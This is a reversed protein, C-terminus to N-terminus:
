AKVRGTKSPKGKAAVYRGWGMPVLGQKRMWELGKFFKEREIDLKAAHWNERAEHVIEEDGTTTGTLLLNNWAAYLTAVIEAQRTNLPLLIQLLADVEALRGGLANATKNLLADFGPKRSFVYAGGVKQQHVDFWNAKRARSEVKKLHPYDNPGAADKLPVRELDIGLHSEILHSIKEAKVHGFYAVRSPNQEHLQYAMALIGAHLDTASIGAIRAPFVLVKGKDPVAQEPVAQEPVAQLKRPRGRELHEAKEAKIRALLMSAPEDSADQAVLRGSFAKKLISQRLVEAQQLSKTIAQDLQDVESFKADICRVIKTMEAISCLPFVLDSVREKNLAKQNNGSGIKRTIEYRYVLYSYIFEPICGAESVRIAATNQNHSAEIDLIAAQGRTKGEGIMGLMITGTPHIETSANGFGLPTIREDTDKIRCFAVEGSSVWPITGNWYDPQKRSPTSGVYVNFIQGFKAWSWGHPLLSMEALEEASLPPQPKPAKPKSGQKGGAEWEALQQQYRQTRERQIRELLADATELKDPNEARWQATLKGEFAHKLLAQRYVKLQAQVTKLSEIGKDLESFLEEIKAVIRRQENTPPIWIRLQTIKSMPLSPMVSSHAFDAFDIRKLFFYVWESSIGAYPIAVGIHSVVYSDQGLLARQNNLTSAGSKTFLVSGKPFLRLRSTARENVRDNTQRLYAADGLRGM